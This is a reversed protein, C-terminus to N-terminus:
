SLAVCIAPVNLRLVLERYACSKEPFALDSNRWKNKDCLFCIIQVEDKGIPDLQWPLLMKSNKKKKKKKKKSFLALINIYIQM